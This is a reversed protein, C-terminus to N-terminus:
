FSDLFDGKKRLSVNVTSGDELEVYSNKGRYYKKLYRLNIIWSNHVRSFNATPLQKEFDGFRKTTTITKGNILYVITYSGRAELKIVEELNVFHVGEATPLGTKQLPSTQLLSKMVELAHHNNLSQDIEKEARKNVQILEETSIPKLLYGISNYKFAKLAYENYATIFIVKFDLDKLLDLLDFANGENLEIDLYVLQPLHKRILAVADPINKANGCLDINSCHQEILTKLLAINRAEDEIHVAKIM